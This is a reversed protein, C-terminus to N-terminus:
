KLAGTSLRLEYQTDTDTDVPAPAPAPTMLKSILWPAGAGAAILGGAVVAKKLTSEFSSVPQPAQQQPPQMYTINDGVQVGMDEEEEKEVGMQKRHATQLDRVNQRVLAGQQNVSDLQSAREALKMGSWRDFEKTKQPQDM